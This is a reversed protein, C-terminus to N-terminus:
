VATEVEAIWAGFLADARDWLPTRNLRAADFFRTPDMGIEELSAGDRELWARLIDPTAEPHYQVGIASGARFVQPYQDSVALLVGGPPVDFSDHHWSVMPGEIAQGTADRSGAETVELDVLGAEQPEVRYAAGGLADAIIQCGLCIGLLPRRREVARRTLEKEAVLFPHDREEYAGMHGGLIVVGAVRDLDPLAAGRFVEVLTYPTQRVELSDILLGPPVSEDNQLIAIPLM